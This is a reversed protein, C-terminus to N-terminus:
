SVHLCSSYLFISERSCVTYLCEFKLANVTASGPTPGGGGEWGKDKSWVLVLLASFFNKPSWKEGGIEPDPHGGGGGGGENDSPRSGGSTLAKKEPHQAFHIGVLLLLLM